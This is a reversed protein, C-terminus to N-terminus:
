ESLFREMLDKIKCLTEDKKEYEEKEPLVENYLDDEGALRTIHKYMDNIDHFTDPPSPLEVAIEVVSVGEQDVEDRWRGDGVLKDMLKTAAKLKGNHDLEPDVKRMQKDFLRKIKEARNLDDSNM